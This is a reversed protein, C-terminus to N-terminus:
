RKGQSVAFDSLPCVMDAHQERSGDQRNGYGGNWGAFVVMGSDAALVPTGTPAGIDVRHYTGMTPWVQFYDYGACAM